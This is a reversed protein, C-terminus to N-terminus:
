EKLDPKILVLGIDTNSEAEAEATNNSSIYKSIIAIDDRLKMNEETLKLAASKLEHNTDEVSEIRNIASTFTSLQENLDFQIGSIKDNVVSKVENSFASSAMHRGVEEVAMKGGEHRAKENSSSRVIFFAASGLFANIFILVTIITQYFSSQFVWLDDLSIITGDRVLEGINHLVMPDIIKEPNELVYSDAINTYETFSPATIAQFMVLWFFLTVISAFVSAFIASYTFHKKNHECSIIHIKKDDLKTAELSTNTEHLLTKNKRASRYYCELITNADFSYSFKCAIKSELFNMMVLCIGGDDCGKSLVNLPM